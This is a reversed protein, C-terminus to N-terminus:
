GAAQASEDAAMIQQDIKEAIARLQQQLEIAEDTYAEIQTVTPTLLDSMQALRAYDAGRAKLSTVGAPAPLSFLKIHDGGSTVSSRAVEDREACLKRARVLLVDLEAILGSSVDRVFAMRELLKLRAELDLLKEAQEVFEADKSLARLAMGVYLTEFKSFEVFFAGITTKLHVHCDGPSPASFVM